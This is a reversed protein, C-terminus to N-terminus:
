QSLEMKLRSLAIRAPENLPILRDLAAAKETKTCYRYEDELAAALPTGMNAAITLCATRQAHYTVNNDYAARGAELAETMYKQHVYM